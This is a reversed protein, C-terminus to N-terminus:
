NQGGDIPLGLLKRVSPLHAFSNELTDALHGDDGPLLEEAYRCYLVYLVCTGAIKATAVWDLLVDESFSFTSPLRGVAVSKGHIFQSCHRYAKSALDRYRLADSAANPYFEQVFSPALVGDRPDLTQSWGFDARDALWQRRLVEDVSFRITAFSLELFLRLTAYAQLYLGSAASYIAYGFETRANLLLKSEPRHQLRSAWRGIDVDHRILSGLESAHQHATLHITLLASKHLDVLRDEIGGTAGSSIAAAM